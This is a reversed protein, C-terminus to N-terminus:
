FQRNVPICKCKQPCNKCFSAEIPYEENIRSKKPKNMNANEVMHTLNIREDWKRVIEREYFQRGKVAYNALYKCGLSESFWSPFGLEGNLKKNLKYNDWSFGVEEFVITPDVKVDKYYNNFFTLFNNIDRCETKLKLLTITPIYMFPNPLLSELENYM